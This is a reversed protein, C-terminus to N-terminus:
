LDGRSTGDALAIRGGTHEPALSPLPDILQLRRATAVLELRSHAGLKRMLSALHTRVTTVQVGLADSMGATDSGASLLQLIQRERSTVCYIGPEACSGGLAARAEPSLAPPKGTLDKRRVAEEALAAISDFDDEKTGIANVHMHRAREVAPADTSALLLLLAPSRPDVRTPLLAMIESLPTVSLGILCLDPAVEHCMALATTPDTVPYSVTHGHAQLLQEILAGFIPQDDGLLIRM